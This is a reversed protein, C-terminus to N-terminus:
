QRITKIKRDQNKKERHQVRERNSQFGAFICQQLSARDRPIGDEEIGEQEYARQASGHVDSDPRIPVEPSRM